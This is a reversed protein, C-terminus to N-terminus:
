FCSIIQEKINQAALYVTKGGVTTVRSSYSGLAFPSVDADSAYSNYGFHQGLVQLLRLLVTKAGQGMDAEGSFVFVKGDEHIRIMACSDDFKDGSRNGSVHTMCAVGIGRKIRGNKDEKPLRNQQIYKNAKDLCERLGCSQNEMWLTLDGQRM